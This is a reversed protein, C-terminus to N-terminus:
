AALAVLARGFAAVLERSRQEAEAASRGALLAPDAAVLPERLAQELAANSQRAEADLEAPLRWQAVAQQRQALARARSELVVELVQRRYARLPQEAFTVLRHGAARTLDAASSGPAARPVDVLAALLVDAMSVVPLDRNPVDVPAHELALPLYAQMSGPRTRHLLERFSADERRLCPFFFLPARNDLGFFTTMLPGIAGARLQQPVKVVERSRAIALATQPDAFIRAAEPGTAELMSLLPTASSGSDGVLGAVTISVRPGNTSLAAHLDGDLGTLQAGPAALAEAVVAALSRGLVQEHAGLLDVDVPQLQAKATGRDPWRSLPQAETGANLFAIGPLPSRPGHLSCVTDDDASLVLEGASALLLANRNAGITTGLARNPQLLFRLAERKHADGGSREEVLKGRAEADLHEIRAGSKQRLRALVERNASPDQSDDGVVVRPERGHKQFHQLYSELLRELAQPRNATPVLLSTIRERPAEGAVKALARAFDDQSQLHGRGALGLVLRTLEKELADGQLGDLAPFGELEALQRAQRTAGWRSRWGQVQSARRAAHERAPVLDTANLVLEVLIPAAGEGPADPNARLLGPYAYGELARVYRANPDTAPAM